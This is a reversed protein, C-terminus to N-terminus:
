NATAGENKLSELKDLDVANVVQKLQDINEANGSAKVAFRQAV